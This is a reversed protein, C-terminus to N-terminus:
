VSIQTMHCKRRRIFLLVKETEIRGGIECFTEITFIIRLKMETTSAARTANATTDFTHGFNM